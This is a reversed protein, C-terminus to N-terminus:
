KRTLSAFYASIDAADGDSLASVMAKMTPDSREGSKYKKISALLYAEKQGALNPYNPVNSIGNIGHCGACTAAKAKGANADGGALSISPISLSSALCIM